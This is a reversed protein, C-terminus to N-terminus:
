RSLSKTPCLSIAKSGASRSLACASASRQGRSTGAAVIDKGGVPFDPRRWDEAYRILRRYGAAAETNGGDIERALALRLRDVMGPKGGRYLM